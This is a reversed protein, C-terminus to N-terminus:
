MGLQRTAQRRHRPRRTTRWGRRRNSMTERGLRSPSAAVSVSGWRFRRLGGAGTEFGPCRHEGTSKCMRSVSRGLRRGFWRHRHKMAVRQLKAVPGGVRGLLEPGRWLLHRGPLPVSPAFQRCSGSSINGAKQGQSNLRLFILQLVCRGLMPGALPRIRLPM